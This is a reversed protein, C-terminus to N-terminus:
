PADRWNVYNQIRVGTLRAAANMSSGFAGVGYNHVGIGWAGSTALAEDRDHWIPSGSHGGVTDMRYGLMETSFDRIKDASTWQTRPKDGPYGGIIAPQNTPSSHEYMGFWGVTNGVTCNLRMAGYDYRFDGNVTWGVVSRLQTVGCFGYPSAGGNRGPYVRYLTRDRWAGSSGGTHVCHGATAVMSPSYLWGTCLHAGNYEIFVIARNPYATTYARTRSDWNIISRLSRGVKGRAVTALGDSPFSKPLAMSAGRARIEGADTSGTGFSPSVAAEAAARPAPGGRGNSSVPTDGPAAFATGFPLAAIVAIRFLRASNKM